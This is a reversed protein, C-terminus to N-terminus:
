IYPQIGALHFSYDVGLACSLLEIIDRHHSLGVLNIMGPRSVTDRRLLIKDPFYPPRSVLILAVNTASLTPLGGVRGQKWKIWFPWPPLCACIRLVNPSVTYCSDIYFQM